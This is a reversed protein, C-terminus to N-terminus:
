FERQPFISKVEIDNGKGSQILQKVKPIIIDFIEKNIGISNDKFKVWKSNGKTVFPLGLLQGNPMNSIFILSVASSETKIIGDIDQENIENKNFEIPPIVTKKVDHDVVYGNGDLELIIRAIVLHDKLYIYKFLLTPNHMTITHDSYPMFVPVYLIDNLYCFRKNAFLVIDYGGGYLWFLNSGTVIENSLLLSTISICDLAVRDISQDEGDGSVFERENLLTKIHLEGEGHALIHDRSYFNTNDWDWEFQAVNSDSSIFWGIISLDEVNIHEKESYDKLFSKCKVLVGEMIESNMENCQKLQEKLYKIFPKAYIYRGTWGVVAQPHVISVKRKTGSIIRLWETPLISSADDFTPLPAHDRDVGLQSTLIDGILIPTNNIQFAAILTM